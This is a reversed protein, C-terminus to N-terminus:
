KRQLPSFRSGPGRSAQGPRIRRRGANPPVTRPGAGAKWEQGSYEGRDIARREAHAQAGNRICPGTGAPNQRFVEAAVGCGYRGTQAQCDCAGAHDQWPTQAVNCAAGRICRRDGRRHRDASAGTEFAASLVQAPIEDASRVVITGTRQAGVSRGNTGQAVDFVPSDRRGAADCEAFDAPEVM